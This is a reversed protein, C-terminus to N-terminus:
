ARSQGGCQGQPDILWIGGSGTCFLHGDRTVKMGDPVGPEALLMDVFLHLLGPEVAIGCLKELPLLPEVQWYNTGICRLRFFKPEHTVLTCRAIM